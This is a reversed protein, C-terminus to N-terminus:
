CNDAQGKHGGQLGGQGANGGLLGVSDFHEQHRSVIHLGGCSARPKGPRLSRKDGAALEVHPDALVGAHEIRQPGRGSHGRTGGGTCHWSAWARRHRLAFRALKTFSPFPRAMECRELAEKLSHFLKWARRANSPSPLDPWPGRANELRPNRVFVM